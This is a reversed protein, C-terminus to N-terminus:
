KIEVLTVMIALIFPGALYQVSPDRYTQPCIKSMNASGSTMVQHRDELDMFPGVSKLNTQIQAGIALAM